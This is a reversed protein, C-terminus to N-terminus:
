SDQLCCCWMLVAPARNEDQFLLSNLCFQLMAQCPKLLISCSLLLLLSHCFFGLCFVVVRPYSPLLSQLPSVISFSFISPFHLNCDLANEDRACILSHYFFKKGQYIFGKIDSKAKETATVLLIVLPFFSDLLVFSCRKSMHILM